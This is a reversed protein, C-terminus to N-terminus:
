CSGCCRIRHLALRLALASFFPITLNDNLNFPEYLETVTAVAAAFGVAYERLPVKAFVVCGVVFCIAFMALSGEVSKKGARGLKVHAVEGGFSVGVLAAAMDGLVLFVIACSSVDPPAAAIALACGLSFFCGGTLQHAEHDRMISRLPWNRAVFPVNLRTLDGCWGLITITWVLKVCDAQPWGYELLALHVLPVLLGCLHFTKREIEQLARRVRQLPVGWSRLLMSPTRRYNKRTLHGNRARVMLTSFLAFVAIVVTLVYTTDIDPHYGDHYQVGLDQAPAATPCITEHLLTTLYSYM